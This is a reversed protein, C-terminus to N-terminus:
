KCIPGDQGEVCCRDSARSMRGDIPGQTTPFACYQSGVHREFAVRSTMTGRDDYRKAPYHSEPQQCGAVGLAIFSLLVYRM